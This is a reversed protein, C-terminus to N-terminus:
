AADPRVILAELRERVQRADYANPIDSPKEGRYMAVDAAVDHRSVEEFSAGIGGFRPRIGGMAQYDTHALADRDVVIFYDYGRTLTAEAARFLLYTEVTERDTETNGSFTIRVRNSEIETEAFGYGASGTKPQYPTQTACAALAGLAAALIFTRM